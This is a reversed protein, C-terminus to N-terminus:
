PLPTFVNPFALFHVGRGDYAPNAGGDALVIQAAEPDGVLIFTYNQGASFQAGGGASATSLDWRSLQFIGSLPIAIVDGPVPVPTTGELTVTGPWPLNNPLGGDGSGPFVSVSFVTGGNPTLPVPTTATLATGGYTIPTQSLPVAGVVQLVPAADEGADVYAEQIVAPV